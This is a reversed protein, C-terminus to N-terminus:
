KSSCRQLRSCPESAVTVGVHLNQFGSLKQEPMAINYVCSTPKVQVSSLVSSLQQVAEQSSTAAAQESALAASLEELDSSQQACSAQTKQLEAKSARYKAEYRDAAAEAAEVREMLEAAECSLSVVEASRAQAYVYPKVTTTCFM